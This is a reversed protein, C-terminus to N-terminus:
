VVGKMEMTIDLSQFFFVLVADDTMLSEERSRTGVSQELSSLNPETPESAKRSHRIGSLIRVAPGASGLIQTVAAGVANKSKVNTSM